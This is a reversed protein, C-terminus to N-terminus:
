QNNRGKCPTHIIEQTKQIPTPENSFNHLLSYILTYKICKYKKSLIENGNTEMLSSPTLKICNVSNNKCETDDLLFFNCDKTFIQKIKNGSM